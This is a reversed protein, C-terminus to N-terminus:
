KILKLINFATGIGTIVAPMIGGSLTDQGSLYLNKVPTDFKFNNKYDFVRQRNYEMGSTSFRNLSKEYTLPTGFVEYEIKGELEPYLELLKNHM